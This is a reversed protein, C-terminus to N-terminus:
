LEKWRFQLIGSTGADDYYGTVEIAVHDGLDTRVVFVLDKPTLVHSNSDYDFWVDFALEPEANDDGDDELDTVYGDTPAVSVDEVRAAEVVAVEVGADGSVGGDLKIRARSFALDWGDAPGDLELMGSDADVYVWAVSDTADVTMHVVGGGVETQVVKPGRAAEASDWPEYDLGRIDPWCGALLTLFTV